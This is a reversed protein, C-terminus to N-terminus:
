LVALVGGDVVLTSGTMLMSLDSACFLAVRAIDDPVGDRGLPKLQHSDIQPVGRAAVEKRSQQLGPTEVTAPAVSLVRIGHPGLQTALSRTLGRIGHKASVYAPNGRSSARYGSVSTMNIIVGRSKADMMKKAAEKAGIFAGKLNVDLVLDWDEETVEFLSKAPYLGANNVWIHPSGLERVVRDALDRVAQENGVDVVGALCRAGHEGSIEQAAQEAAAKDLDAVVVHAGAEAFRNAIAYGIGRAGGTVVAVRGALSVLESITHTSVDPVSM